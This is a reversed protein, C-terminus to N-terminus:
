ARSFNSPGTAIPPPPELRREREARLAAWQHAIREALREDDTQRSPIVRAFRGRLGHVAEGEAPDPREEDSTV